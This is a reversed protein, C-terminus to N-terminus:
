KGFRSSRLTTAERVLSQVQDSDLILAPSTIQRIAGGLTRVATPEGLPDRRANNSFWTSPDILSRGNRWPKEFSKQRLQYLLKAARCGVYAVLLVIRNFTNFHGTAHTTLQGVDITFLQVVTQEIAGPSGGSNARDVGSECLLDDFAGRLEGQM